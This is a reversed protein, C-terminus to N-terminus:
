ATSSKNGALDVTTVHYVVTKGDPSIQPAGVRKLAFLDEVKIPRKDAAALRAPPMLGGLILLAAVFAVVARRTLATMPAGITARDFEMRASTGCLTEARLAPVVYGPAVGRTRPSM